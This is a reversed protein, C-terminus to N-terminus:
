GKTSRNAHQRTYEALADSAREHRNYAARIRADRADSSNWHRRGSGSTEREVTARWRYYAKEKAAYLERHTDDIYQTM